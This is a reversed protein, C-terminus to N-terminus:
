HAKGIEASRGAALAASHAKAVDVSVQARHSAKRMVDIFRPKEASSATILPINPM